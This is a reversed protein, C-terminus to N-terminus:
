ANALVAAGVVARLLHQSFRSTKLNRWGQHGIIPLLFFLGFLNRAFVLMEHSVEGSLHKILAAMVSIMLEGSLLM